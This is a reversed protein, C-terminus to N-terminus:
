TLSGSEALVGLWSGLCVAGGLWTAYRLALGRCLSNRWLSWAEQKGWPSLLRASRIVWQEALPSAPTDFPVNIGNWSIHCAHYVEQGVEKALPILMSRQAQVSWCYWRHMLLNISLWYAWMRHHGSEQFTDKMLSRWLRAIWCCPVHRLNCVMDLGQSFWFRARASRVSFSTIRKASVLGDLDISMDMVFRSMRRLCYLGSPTVKWDGFSAFCDRWVLATRSNKKGLNLWFLLSQGTKASCSYSFLIDSFLGQLHCCVTALQWSWVM